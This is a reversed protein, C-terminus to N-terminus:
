CRGTPRRPWRGLSGTRLPSARGSISEMSPITGACQTVEPAPGGPQHDRLPEGLAAARSREHSPSGGKCSRRRRRAARPVFTPRVSSCTHACRAPGRRARSIWESMDLREYGGQSLARMQKVSGFVLNEVEVARGHRQSLLQGTTSAVPEFKAESRKQKWSVQCKVEHSIRRRQTTAGDAAPSV